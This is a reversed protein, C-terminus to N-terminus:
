RLDNVGADTGTEKQKPLSITDLDPLTVVQQLGSTGIPLVLDPRPLDIQWLAEGSTPDADGRKPRVLTLSILEYKVDVDWLIFLRTMAPQELMPLQWAEQRRFSHGPAPMGGQFAKLIWIELGSLRIRIGSNPLDPMSPAADDVEFDLCWLSQALARRAHCRTIHAALYPNVELKTRDFHDRAVDTGLGLAEWIAPIIPQLRRLAEAAEPHM